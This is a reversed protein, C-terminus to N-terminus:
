FKGMPVLMLIFLVVVCLLWVFFLWPSLKTYSADLRRIM